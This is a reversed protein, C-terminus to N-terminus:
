PFVPIAALILTAKQEPCTFCALYLCHIKIIKLTNSLKAQCDIMTCSKQRDVNMGPCFNLM